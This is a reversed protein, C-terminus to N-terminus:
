LGKEGIVEVTAPEGSVTIYDIKWAVEETERDASISLNPVVAQVLLEKRLGDPITGFPVPINIVQYSNEKVASVTVDRVEAGSLNTVSLLLDASTSAEEQVVNEQRYTVNFPEEAALCPICSICLLWLLTSVATKM